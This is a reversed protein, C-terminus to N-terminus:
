TAAEKSKIDLARLRRTCAPCTAWRGSVHPETTADGCLDCVVEAAPNLQQALTRPERRPKDQRRSM